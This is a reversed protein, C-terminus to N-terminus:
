YQPKGAEVKVQIIQLIKKKRLLNFGLKIM